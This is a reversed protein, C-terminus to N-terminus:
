TLAIPTTCSLSVLGVIKVKQFHAIRPVRPGALLNMDKMRQGLAPLNEQTAPNLWIEIGSM